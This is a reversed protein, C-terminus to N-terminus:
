AEGRARRASEVPDGALAKSAALLKAVVPSLHFEAVRPLQAPEPEEGRARRASQLIFEAASRTDSDDDAAGVDVLAPDPDVLRASTTPFAPAQGNRARMENILRKYNESVSM